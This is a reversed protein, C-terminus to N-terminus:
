DPLRPRTLYYTVLIFSGQVNARSGAVRWGQAKLPGLVQSVSQEEVPMELNGVWMRTIQSRDKDGISRVELMVTMEPM